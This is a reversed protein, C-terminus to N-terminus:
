EGRLSAVPDVRSARRAPVYSALLGIAVMGASMVAFTGTDVADVGYLLSGLARTAAVAAALGLVVGLLVVRVGEAVVMRRVQEVRAGLALRVGIEKTRGAVVCSLVAYLGVAGLVLALGAAVALTLMTFSLQAMSDRALQDMTFDRYMPAEPAVDRVLARVDAAISGARPTKVVYAPSAIAWSTPTPGVMPLYVLPKPADRFNDQMVDEVVGVVTYLRDGGLPQLRKGVADDGPWLLSAAARSVVVHPLGSLHDDSDLPRGAVLEIGMAEFYDGAAFTIQLLPAADPENAKGEAHIRASATSENLPVNEVLGVTEVGPLARLRDIFELNFRAFSPGDTLSSRAPAIQFTFVDATDYGPDVDRLTWFSRLLLGSGILLVLALATQGAVLGDRTWHRRGTSGRGGEALRTLGQGSARLAPGAACALAAFAAVALTFALSSAAFRVDELRPIGAPVFTLFPPLALLALGAALAGALGAIVGAEAMQFRVLQGRAAGVARRVALDRQRAEARVAFLNAVNVCAIVLVITVAAFLVWIPRAVSGFMEDRLPRVVARHQAILRAYDASGGFREPLRSALATLEAAVEDPTAGPAMRAVLSDGFRGPELGEARFDTPIWLLTGDDPFRFEPGMIGIVTRDAGNMSYARGLVGPDRDFWSSWLADSIVAVDDEDAPSPLRGLVPIGGLTSFLTSTPFSMRIREVRDGARLTSTGSNYTSVDELLRSQERYQLYFEPAVGFEQPFDSGPASAAIHVLRGAHAYPLPDLLVTQVVTYIAATAGIALGLTGAATLTFGPARRLARAAYRVDRLWDQIMERMSRRRGPTSGIAQRGQEQRRGRARLREVVFGLVQRRYWRVAARPSTEVARASFEERLDGELDDRRAPDLSWRLLARWLAPPRM